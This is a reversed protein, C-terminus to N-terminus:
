NQDKRSTKAIPMIGCRAADRFGDPLLRASPHRHDYGIQKLLCRRDCPGEVFPDVPLHDGMQRLKPMPQEIDTLFTIESRKPPVTKNSNSRSQFMVQSLLAGLRQNQSIRDIRIKQGLCVRAYGPRPTNRHGDGVRNRDMRDPEASPHVPQIHRIRETLHHGLGRQAPRNRHLHTAKGDRRFIGAKRRSGRFTFRAAQFDEIEGRGCTRMDTGRQTPQQFIQGSAGAQRDYHPTM